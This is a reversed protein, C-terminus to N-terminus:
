TVLLGSHVWCKGDRLPVDTLSEWQVLVTGSWAANAAWPVEVIRGRRKKGMLHQHETGEWLWAHELNTWVIDGVKLSGLENEGRM